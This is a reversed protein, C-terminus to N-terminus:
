YGVYVDSWEPINTTHYDLPKVGHASLEYLKKNELEPILCFLRELAHAMTSDVQGIEPEFSDAHVVNFVSSLNDVRAWFMTGAFFGYEDARGSIERGAKKDILATVLKQVHHRTSSYNVLLSVYEGGPGVIATDKKDLQKQLDRLINRDDPLLSEVIRDRWEDGDDRHPSKKSHLKLVKDYGMVQLQRAVEIFPLVDRGGNPVTAIRAAPLVKEVSARMELKKDPITVFLDYKLGDLRDLKQAFYEAMEPYYLHLTVATDATRKTQFCGTFSNSAYTSLIYNKNKIRRYARRPTIDIVKNSAKKAVHKSLAIKKALRYSGSKTIEHIEREKAALKIKTKLHERRELELPSNIHENTNALKKTM